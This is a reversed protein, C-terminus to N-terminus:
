TIQYTHKSLLTSHGVKVWFEWEHTAEDDHELTYDSDDYIHSKVRSEHGLELMIVANHSPVGRGGSGGGSSSGSSGHGHSQFFYLLIIFITCRIFHIVNRM